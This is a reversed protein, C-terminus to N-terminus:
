PSQSSAANAVIVGIIVAELVALAGISLVLTTGFMNSQEAEHRKKNETKWMEYHRKDEEKYMDRQKETLKVIEELKAAKEIGLDVRMSMQNVEKMYYQLSEDMALLEKFQDLTYGMYKDSTGEEVILKGQPFYKSTHIQETGAEAAYATSATLLLASAATILWIKSM